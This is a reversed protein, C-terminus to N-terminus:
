GFGFKGSDIEKDGKYITFTPRHVSEFRYKEGAAGILEYDMTLLQGKRQVKIRQELPGGAKFIAPDGPGVQIPELRTPGQPLFHTFGSKLHLESVQYTGPELMISEGPEEFTQKEGGSQLILREINEGEIKLEYMIPQESQSDSQNGLAVSSTIIVACLFLRGAFGRLCRKKEMDVDESIM